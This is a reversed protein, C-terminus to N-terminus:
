DDDGGDRPGPRPKPRPPNGQKDKGQLVTGSDPRMNQAPSPVGLLAILTLVLLTRLWFRNFLM